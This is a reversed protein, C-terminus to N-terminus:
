VMWKEEEVGVEEVAAGVLEGYWCITASLAPIKVV